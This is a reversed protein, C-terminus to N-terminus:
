RRRSRPAPASVGDRYVYSAEGTMDIAYSNVAAIFASVAPHGTNVTLRRFLDPHPAPITVRTQSGHVSVFPLSADRWQATNSAPNAEEDPALPATRLVLSHGTYVQLTCAVIRGLTLPELTRWLHDAADAAGSPDMADDVVQTARPISTTGRERFEHAFRITFVIHGRHYPV